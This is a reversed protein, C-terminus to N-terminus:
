VHARGIQDFKETNIKAKFDTCERLAPDQDKAKGKQALTYGRQHWDQHECREDMLYSSCGVNFTGIFILTLYITLRTPHFM